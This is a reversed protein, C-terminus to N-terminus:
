TDLGVWISANAADEVPFSVGTDPEGKGPVTELMDTFWFYRKPV